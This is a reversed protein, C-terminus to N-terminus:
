RISGSVWRKAIFQEASKQSGLTSLINRLGFDYHRQKSLQQECLAYLINFKKALSDQPSSFATLQRHSPRLPFRFVAFRLWGFLLIVPNCMGLDCLTEALVHDVKDFNGSHACVCVVIKNRLSSGLTGQSKGYYLLSSLIM